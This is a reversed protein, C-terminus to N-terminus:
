EYIMQSCFVLLKMLCIGWKSNNAMNESPTTIFEFAVGVHMGTREALQGVYVACVWALM